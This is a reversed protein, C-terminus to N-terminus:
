TPLATCCGLLTIRLWCRSVCPWASTAMHQASCWLPWHLQRLPEWLQRLAEQPQRLGLFALTPGTHSLSPNVCDLNPLRQPQLLLKHQHAVWLIKRPKICSIERLCQPIAALSIRQQTLWNWCRSQVRINSLWFVRLYSCRNERMSNKWPCQDLFLPTM